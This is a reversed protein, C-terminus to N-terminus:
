TWTAAQAILRVTSISFYATSSINGTLTCVNSIAGPAISTIETPAPTFQSVFTPTFDGNANLTLSVTNATLTSSLNKVRFTKEIIQGRYISGFDLEAGTIEQDLTPHWIALRTMNTPRDGYLQLSHYRTGGMLDYSYRYHRVAKVNTWGTVTSIGTRTKDLHPLGWQMVQASSEVWTGDLGNTTNTSYYIRSNGSQTPMTSGDGGTSAAFVHTVTRPEPFVVIINSVQPDNPGFGVPIAGGTAKDSNLNAIETVSYNPNGYSWGGGLYVFTASGDTDYAFRNNPPDPFSGAM